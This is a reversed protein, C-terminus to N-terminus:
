GHGWFTQDARPNALSLYSLYKQFLNPLSNTVSNGNYSLPNLVQCLGKLSTPEMLDRAKTLPNLIQCQWLNHHLNCIRSLDLTATATAHAPLQLESKVGLRSVETHRPHPGLFFFFSFFDTVSDWTAQRLRAHQVISQQGSPGSLGKAYCGGGGVGAGLVRPWSCGRGGADSLHM